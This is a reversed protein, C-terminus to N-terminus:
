TLFAMVQNVNPIKLTKEIELEKFPHSIDNAITIIWWLRPDGYHLNAILDARYQYKAEIKWYSYNFNGIRSKIDKDRMGIRVANIREDNILKYYRLRSYKGYINQSDVQPM